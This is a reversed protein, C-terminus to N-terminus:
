ISPLVLDRFVARRRAVEQRSIILNRTTLAPGQIVHQEAQSTELGHNVDSDIFTTAEQDLGPNSTAHAQISARTDTAINALRDAM